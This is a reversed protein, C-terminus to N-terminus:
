GLMTLIIYINESRVILITFSILAQAAGYFMSVKWHEIGMENALLQYVHRRHPVTLSERSQIRVAMTIIEDAYFMLLFGSMCIFDRLDICFYILVGAFVFGLFVSGVDGMFVRAKPINFFLFGISALAMGACLVIYETRVQGMVGYFAISGFAVVSIIGAIGDIGDMFNFINATGAIFVIFFLYLFINESYSVPSFQILFLLACLVQVILRLSVSLERRDGLFSVLAIVFASGWLHYPLNLFFSLTLFAFFIGIGGGKPVIGKHSSRQNSIDITDLRIGYKSIFWAGAAGLSISAILLSIIKIM